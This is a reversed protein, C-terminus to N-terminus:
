GRVWEVENLYCNEFSGAQDFRTVSPNGCQYAWIALQDIV